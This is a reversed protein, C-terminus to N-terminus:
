CVLSVNQCCEEHGIQLLRSGSFIPVNVFSVFAADTAVLQRGPAPSGPLRWADLHFCTEHGKMLFVWNSLVGTHQAESSIFFSFSHRDVLNRFEASLM